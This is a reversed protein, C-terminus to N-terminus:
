LKRIPIPFLSWETMLVGSLEGYDKLIIIVQFPFERFDDFGCASSSREHTGLTLFTIRVESVFM